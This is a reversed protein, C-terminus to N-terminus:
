NDKVQEDIISKLEELMDKSYILKKIEINSIFIIKVFSKSTRVAEIYTNRKISSSTILIGLNSLGNTNDVKHLFQIFNNKDVKEKTNKCEVLIYPSFKQFFIDNIENRIILDVENLSKDKVRKLIHTFGMQAFLISIFQEFREGKQYTDTENKAEAYLSELSKQNIIPNNEFQQIIKDTERLINKSFIDFKDKDLVASIKGSAFVENIDENYEPIYASQIIIKAFPNISIIEKIIDFGNISFNDMRLDVIAINFYLNEIHNKIDAENTAIKVFYNPREKKFVKQLSNAQINEDDIILITHKM